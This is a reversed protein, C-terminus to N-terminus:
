SCSGEKITGITSDYFFKIEPLDEHTANLCYSNQTQKDPDTPTGWTEPNLQTQTPLEPFYKAYANPSYLEQTDVKRLSINLSLNSINALSRYNVFDNGTYFKYVQFIKGTTKATEWNTDFNTIDNLCSQKYSPRQEPANCWSTLLQKAQQKSGGTAPYYYTYLLRNSGDTNEYRIAGPQGTNIKLVEETEVWSYTKNNKPTNLTPNSYLPGTKLTASALTIIIGDSTTISSPLESPIKGAQKSMETTISLVANKLDSKATSAIASKQQNAFIPIAIAALIGIIIVVIMLEILTFGEDHHVINKYVTRYKNLM